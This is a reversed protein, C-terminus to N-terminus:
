YHQNAFKDIRIKKGWSNIVIVDEGSHYADRAKPFSLRRGGIKKVVLEDDKWRYRLNSKTQM